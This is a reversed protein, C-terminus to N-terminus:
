LFRDLLLADIHDDVGRAGIFVCTADQVDHFCCTLRHLLIRAVPRARLQAKNVHTSDQKAARGLDHVNMELQAEVPRLSM